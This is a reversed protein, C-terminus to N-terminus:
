FILRGFHRGHKVLDLKIEDIYAKLFHSEKLKFFNLTLKKM